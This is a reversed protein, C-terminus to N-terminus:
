RNFGDVWVDELPNPEIDTTKFRLEEWTSVDNEHVSRTPAWPVALREENAQGQVPTYGIIGLSLPELKSIGPPRSPTIEVVLIAAAVDPDPLSVTTSIPWYEDDLAARWVEGDTGSCTGVSQTVLIQSGTGYSLDFRRGHAGPETANMQCDYVTPQSAFASDLLISIHGQSLFWTGLDSPLDLKLQVVGANSMTTVLKAKESTAGGLDGLNLKPADSESGGPKIYMRPARPNVGTWNGSVNSMEAVWGGPAQGLTSGDLGGFLFPIGNARAEISSIRVEDYGEDVSEDKTYVLVIHHQGATVSVHAVGRKTRGSVYYQETGDVLIRFADHDQESDVFYGVQLENKEADPWTIDRAIGAETSTAQYGAFAMETPRRWERAPPGYTTCWGGGYGGRTWGPIDCGHLRSFNHVEFVDGNCIFRIDDVWATDLGGDVSGDKTYALRITHAGASVPVAIKGGRHFGSLTAGVVGDVSIELNDKDAQSDVFVSMVAMGASPWTTQRELWSSTVENTSGLGHHTSPPGVRENVVYGVSAAGAQHIGLSLFLAALSVSLFSRM